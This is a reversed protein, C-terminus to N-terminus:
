RDHTTDGCRHCETGVANLHTDEGKLAKSNIQAAEAGQAVELAKTLTLSAMTLLKRQTDTDRMGCVLRDRLAENLHDGFECHTSLKRLEAMYNAISEGLAQSRKHFLFREAIVLPKPEFHVKLVESLEAFTKEQPLSPAVLSRLLSYTKSGVVTLFIPVKKDDGVDNASFFLDVRELYASFLENEQNYEQVSGYVLATAM